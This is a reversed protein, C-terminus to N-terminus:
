KGAQARLDSPQESNGQWQDDVEAKPVGVQRLAAFAENCNDTQCRDHPHKAEGM